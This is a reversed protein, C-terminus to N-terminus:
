IVFKDKVKLLTLTDRVMLIESQSPMHTLGLKGSAAYCNHATYFM